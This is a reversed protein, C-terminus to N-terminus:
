YKETDPRPVASYQDYRGGAGAGAPEAVAGRAFEALDVCDPERAPRHPPLTIEYLAAFLRSGAPTLAYYVKRRDGIDGTRIKRTVLGGDVLAKLAITITNPNAGFEDKLETFYKEGETALAIGGPASRRFVKVAERVELPSHRYRDTAGQNIGRM